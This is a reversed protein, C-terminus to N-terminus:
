SRLTRANLEDPERSLTPEAEGEGRVGAQAHTFVCASKIFYFIKLNCNFIFCKNLPSLEMVLSFFTYKKNLFLSYNQLGALM